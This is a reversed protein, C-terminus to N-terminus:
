QDDGDHWHGGEALAPRDAPATTTYPFGDVTIPRASEAGTSGDFPGPGCCDRTVHGAGCALCTFWWAGTNDTHSYALTGDCMGCGHGCTPRGTHEAVLETGTLTLDESRDDNCRCGVGHECGPIPELTRTTDDDM